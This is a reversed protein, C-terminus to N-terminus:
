DGFASCTAHKRLPGLVCCGCFRRPKSTNELSGLWGEATLRDTVHWKQPKDVEEISLGHRGFAM